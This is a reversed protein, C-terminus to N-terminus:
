LLKQIVIESIKEGSRGEGYPSTEPLNQKMNLNQVIANLTNEKTTGIVQAFGADVAEPRETSLRLVLVKKRIPPATAEEQIGGSDTLILRCNKMLLLFDFYGVPPLIQINMSSALKKWMDFQRLRKLTRPHVPFVIPIPSDIFAEVLNKLILPDDVNEARHVTVLMYDDFKLTDMIKSVQEAIPLHQICADIVTNGTVYIDGWVNERKLNDRSNDTPAFLYNSIHDVVRRNHEEQMRLDFSRLGAEVHGVKVNQKNAALAAALVSNTDGELLLLYPREKRIIRNFGLLIRGIQEGPSAEEIKLNYDPQPLDIEEIFQLSLNYDYHQGSHVIVFDRGRKKLAKIVPAMKIIEPRTGISIMLDTM